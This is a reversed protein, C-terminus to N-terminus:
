FMRTSISETKGVKFDVGIFFEHSGNNYKNLKNLGLDYSYGLRLYNTINFETLFVLDQSTRYSVGLWFVKKFLASLNVDISLPAAGTYKMMFSPKLVVNDSIVFAKGFMLMYHRYLQSRLDVASSYKIKQQTLHTVTLGAYLTNTYYYLGFDFSPVFRGSISANTFKDQDKYELQSGDLQFRYLGARLGMSLKGTSLPLHYAYSGFFGINNSPGINDNVVNFGIGMRKATLPGHISFTQSVPAGKMGVWQNRYLLVASISKRSGAYAPNISFLNFMYESYQADQQAQATTCYLLVIIIINRKGIM